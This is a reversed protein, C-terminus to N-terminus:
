EQDTFRGTTNIVPIQAPPMQPSPSLGNLQTDMMSSEFGFDFSMDDNLDEDMIGSQKLLQELDLTVKKKSSKSKTKAKKPPPPESSSDPVSIQQQEVDRVLQPTSQNLMPAQGSRNVSFQNQQTPTSSNQLEVPIPGPPVQIQQHFGQPQSPLQQLHGQQGGLQVQPQTQPQLSLQQHAQMQIHTVGAPAQIQQQASLSTTQTLGGQIQIQAQQQQQTQHILQQAQQQQQQLQLQVQQSQQTQLQIQPPTTAIQNQIATTPAVISEGQIQGFQSAQSPQPYRVAVWAPGNATQIQQLGYGSTQCRRFICKNDFLFYQICVNKQSSIKKREGSSSTASTICIPCNAQWGSSSCNHGDSACEPSSSCWHSSPNYTSSATDTAAKSNTAFCRGSCNFSHAFANATWVTFISM